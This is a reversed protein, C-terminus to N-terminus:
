ACCKANSILRRSVGNFAPVRRVRRGQARPVAAGKGLTKDRRQIEWSKFWGGYNKHAGGYKEWKKKAFFFFFFFGLLQVSHQINPWILSISISSTFKKTDLFIQQFTPHASPQRGHPDRLARHFPGYKWGRRRTHKCLENRPPALDRTSWIVRSDGTRGPTRGRRGVRAAIDMGTPPKWYQITPVFNDKGQVRPAQSDLM